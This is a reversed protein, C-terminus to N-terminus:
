PRCDYRIFAMSIDFTLKLYGFSIMSVYNTSKAKKQCFLQWNNDYLDSVQVLKKM